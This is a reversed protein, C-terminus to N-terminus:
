MRGSSNGLALGGDRDGDMWLCKLDPLLVDLRRVGDSLSDSDLLESGSM